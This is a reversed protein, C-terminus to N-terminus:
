IVYVEVTEVVVVVEYKYKSESIAIMSFQRTPSMDCNEINNYSYAAYSTDGVGVGVCEDRGWENLPCMFNFAKM